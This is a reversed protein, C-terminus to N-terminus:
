QGEGELQHELEEYPVNGSWLLRGGEEVVRAAVSALSRDEYVVVLAVQDEDLEGAIETLDEDDLIDSTAGEFVKFDFDEGHDLVSIPLRRPLGDADKAVVELDLVELTGDDVLQLLQRLAGTADASRSLVFAAFDAPGWFTDTAM